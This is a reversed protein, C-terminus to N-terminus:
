LLDCKTFFHDINEGINSSLPCDRSISMRLKTHKGRTPLMNRVVKWTFLQLKPRMNLHWLSNIFNAKPPPEINTINAWTTSKLFLFFSYPTRAFKIKLIILLIPINNLNKIIDESLVIRLM